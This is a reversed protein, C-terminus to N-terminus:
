HPPGPIHPVAGGAPGAAAGGNSGAPASGPAASSASPESSALKAAVKELVADDISVNARKKLDDYFSQTRSQQAQSRLTARIQEKVLEFPKETGAKREELKIIHFGYPTKVVDSLDGPNKLAFAAREFDPVMRGHGFFGLDGGKSASGTDTSNAKALEAFQSPDHKIKALLDRAQAEDKVLIHRVRITTTSYVERNDDYYKQVEEDSVVPAAQLGRVVRQVVLRKRLDSVQREIEPDSAYGQRAGEDYLLDNLALNEVYRKRGEASMLRRSREPLRGLEASLEDATLVHDGYRAVVEGSPSAKSSAAAPPSATSGASSPSPAPSTNCAVLGALCASALCAIASNSPTLSKNMTQDM